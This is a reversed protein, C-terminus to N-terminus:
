NRKKKVIGLTFDILKILENLGEINEIPLLNFVDEEFDMLEPSYKRVKSYNNIAKETQKNLVSWSFLILYIYAYDYNKKNKKSAFFKYDNESQAFFDDSIIGGLNKYIQGLFAYALSRFLYTQHLYIKKFYPTPNSNPCMELYLNYSIVSNFDDIAKQYNKNQLYIFGRKFKLIRCGPDWKLQQSIDELTSLESYKKKPWWM